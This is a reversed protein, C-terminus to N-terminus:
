LDAYVDTFIIICKWVDCIVSLVFFYLFFCVLGMTGYYVLRYHFLLPQASRQCSSYDTLPKSFVQDFVIAMVFVDVIPVMRFM